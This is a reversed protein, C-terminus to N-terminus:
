IVSEGEAARAPDSADGLYAAIVAPDRRIEIPNGHAVIQGFDLVYIDDCVSLVLAMDHDILFISIEEDILRRLLQGLEASEHADLGAAPEDLLLLRPRTVMSRALSVLKRQGHSIDRPLVNVLELLGTKGLAWEIAEDVDQADTRVEAAVRLNDEVTLDDFLELSQFTRILGQRARTQPTASTIEVGDLWVSGAALSTFGTIADIFTTKGAGNAGILGVIKGSEAKLSVRNNAHVGGYTVTVDRAELLPEARRPSENSATDIMTLTHLRQAEGALGASDHSPGM